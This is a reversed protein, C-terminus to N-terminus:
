QFSKIMIIAILLNIQGQWDADISRGERLLGQEYYAKAVLDTPDEKLVSYFFNQSNKFDGQQFHTVGLNFDANTKLRLEKEEPPLTDLVEFVEIATDNQGKLLIKGYNRFSYTDPSSLNKQTEASILIQANAEKALSELRFVLNVVHGIVTCSQRTPTGVVGVIGIGTNMGIAVSFSYHYKNQIEAHRKKIEIQIEISAALAENADKFIAMISDGIYKDSFGNHQKIIPEAIAIFDNIFEFSAQPTLTNSLTSFGRIDISVVTLEHEASDGLALEQFNEKGMFHIFQFPIYREAAVYLANLEKNKEILALKSEEQASVDQVSAYLSTIQDADNLIFDAFEHLYKKQGFKDQIQYEINFSSGNEIAKQYIKKVREKHSPAIFDLMFDEHLEDQESLGLIRRLEPSCDLKRTTLNFNYFGICALKQAIELEKQSRHLNNFNASNRLLYRIRYTLLDSNIPKTIFDTAGHYFAKAISQTDERVTVMMIPLNKYAAMSRLDECVEFGNRIPMNVDLLVADPRKEQILAIAESGDVAEVVEIDITALVKKLLARILSSDDVVLVVPNKQIM